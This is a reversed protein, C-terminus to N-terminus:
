WYLSGSFYGSCYLRINKLLGYGADGDEAYTAIGWVGQRHIVRFKLVLAYPTRYATRVRNTKIRARAKKLIKIENLGVNESSREATMERAPPFGSQEARFGIFLCNSFDRTVLNGIGAQALIVPTFAAQRFNFTPQNKVWCFRQAEPMKDPKGVWGIM